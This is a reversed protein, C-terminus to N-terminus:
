VKAHTNEQLNAAFKLVGKKLFVGPRSSRLRGVLACKMKKPVHNTVNEKSRMNIKNLNNYLVITIHNNMM